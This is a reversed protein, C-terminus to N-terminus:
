MNPSLRDPFHKQIQSFNHCEWVAFKMGFAICDLCRKVNKILMDWCHNSLSLSGYTAAEGGVFPLTCQCFMSKKGLKDQIFPTVQGIIRARAFWHKLEPWNFHCIEHCFVEPTYSTMYFTIMCFVTWQCSYQYSDLDVYVWAFNDSGKSHICKKCTVRCM